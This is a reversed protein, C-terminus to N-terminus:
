VLAREEVSPREGCCWPERRWVLAGEEVGPPGVGCWLAKWWLLASDEVGPRKGGCWPARRWVLTSDELTSHCIFISLSLDCIQLQNVQTFWLLSTHIFLFFLMICNTLRYVMYVNLM